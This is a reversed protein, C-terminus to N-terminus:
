RVTYNEIKNKDKPCKVEVADFEYCTDAHDLFQMKEINEPTPFVFVNKKDTQSLYVYLLGLALSTIFIPINVYKLM